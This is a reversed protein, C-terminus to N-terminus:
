RGDAHDVYGSRDIVGANSRRDTRYFVQRVHGGGCGHRRNAGGPAIGM